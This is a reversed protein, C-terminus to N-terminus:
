MGFIEGVLNYFDPGRDLELQLLHKAETNRNAMDLHGVVL